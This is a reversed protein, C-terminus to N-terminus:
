ISYANFHYKPNSELSKVIKEISKNGLANYSLQCKSTNRVSVDM